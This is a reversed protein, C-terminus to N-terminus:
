NSPKLNLGGNYIGWGMGLSFDFSGYRKSAVLYEGSFLGTGAFDSLGVAIQPM